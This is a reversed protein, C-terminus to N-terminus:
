KKCKGKRWKDYSCDGDSPAQSEPGECGEKEEDEEEQEKPVECDSLAGCWFIQVGLFEFDEGLLTPTRLSSKPARFRTQM